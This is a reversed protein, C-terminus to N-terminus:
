AVVFPERTEPTAAVHRFSRSERRHSTRHAEREAGLRRLFHGHRNKGFDERHPAAEFASKQCAGDGAKM